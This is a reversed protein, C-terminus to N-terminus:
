PVAACLMCAPVTYRNPIIMRTMRVFPMILGKLVATWLFLYKIIILQIENLIDGFHSRLGLPARSADADHERCFVALVGM